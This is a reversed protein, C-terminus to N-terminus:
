KEHRFLQIGYNRNNIFRSYFVEKTKKFRIILIHNKTLYFENIIPINYKNKM